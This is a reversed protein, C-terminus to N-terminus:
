NISRGGDVPLTYGTIYRAELLFHAAAAIDEPAGWRQLITRQVALEGDNADAGAPPLIPGPAIANVRVTPALARAFGQVMSIVAAKSASYPIHSPWASLGAVDAITLMAGGGRARLHRGLRVGLIWTSRANVQMARDFDESTATDIPTRHFNAASLVVRDLHPAIRLAEDALRETADVVGLDAQLIWAERGTDRVAAATEAAGAEDRGYHIIVDRGRAGQDLALCRGIRRSAGTVLVASESPKPM